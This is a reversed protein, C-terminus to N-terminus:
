TQIGKVAADGALEFYIIHFAEIRTCDKEFISDRTDITPQSWKRLMAFIKDRQEQSGRRMCERLANFGAGEVSEETLLTSEVM